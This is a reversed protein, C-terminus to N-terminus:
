RLGGPGEFNGSHTRVSSAHCAMPQILHLLQQFFAFCCAAAICKILALDVSQIGVIINLAAGVSVLLFAVYYSYETYCHLIILLIKLHKVDYSM